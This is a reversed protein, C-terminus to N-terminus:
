MNKQTSTTAPWSSWTSPRTTSPTPTTAPEPRSGSSPTLCGWTPRTKPWRPWCRSADRWERPSSTPDSMATFFRFNHSVNNGNSLSIACSIRLLFMVSEVIKLDRCFQFPDSQLLKRLKPYCSSRGAWYPRPTTVCKIM